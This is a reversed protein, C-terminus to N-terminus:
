TIAQDVTRYEALDPPPTGPMASWAPAISGLFALGAGLAFHRPSLMRASHPLSCRPALHPSDHAAASLPPAAWRCRPVISAHPPARRGAFTAGRRPRVHM